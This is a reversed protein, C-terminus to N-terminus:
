YLKLSNICTPSESPIVTPLLIIQDCKMCYNFIISIFDEICDCCRRHYTIVYSALMYKIIFISGLSCEIEFGVMAYHM